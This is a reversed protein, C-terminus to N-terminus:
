ASPSLDLGISGPTAWFLDEITHHSNPPCLNGRNNSLATASGELFKGHQTSGVVVIQSHCENAWHRGRCCWPCVGSPWAGWVPFSSLMETRSLPTKKGQLMRQCFGRSGVSLCAGNNGTKSSHIIEKLASCIRIM